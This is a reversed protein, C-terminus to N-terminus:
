TLFLSGASFHISRMTLSVDETKAVLIIADDKTLRVDEAESCDDDFDMQELDAGSGLGINYLGMAALGDVDVPTFERTDPVDDVDEDDDDDDDDEDDPASEEKVIGDVADTDTRERDNAEAESEGDDGRAESQRESGPAVLRSQDVVEESAGPGDGEDSSYEDMRLDAPLESPPESSSMQVKMTGRQRKLDHKTGSKEKTSSTTDLAQLMERERATLEYRKPSSAAVGAPVWGIASIM